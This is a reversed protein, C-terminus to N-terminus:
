YCNPINKTRSRAYKVYKGENPEAVNLNSIYLNLVSPNIGINILWLKLEIFSVDMNDMDIAVLCFIVHTPKCRQLRIM